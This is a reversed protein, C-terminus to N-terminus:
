KYWRLLLQGGERLVQPQAWPMSPDLARRDKEQGRYGGGGKGSTALKRLKRFRAPAGVTPGTEPSWMEGYGGTSQPSGITAAGGQREVRMSVLPHDLEEWRM